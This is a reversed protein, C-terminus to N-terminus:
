KNGKVSENGNSICKGGCKVSEGVKSILEDFKKPSYGHEMFIIVGQPDVVFNRPCGGDSFLKMVSGSEDYCLDFGANAKKGFWEANEMTQGAGIALFVFKDEDFVDILEKKVRGLERMCPNCTVIWFNVVVTKGRLDRMSIQKGGVTKVSFDPVIDGITVFWERVVVGALKGNYFLTDRDVKKPMRNQGESVVSFVCSLLSLAIVFIYSNRM